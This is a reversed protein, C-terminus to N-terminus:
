TKTGESSTYLSVYDCSEEDGDLCAECTGCTDFIFKVGVRAGIAPFPNSGDRHGVAAM